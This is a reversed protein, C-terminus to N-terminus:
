HMTEPFTRGTHGKCLEVPVGGALSLVSGIALCVLVKSQITGGGVPVDWPLVGALGDKRWFMSWM